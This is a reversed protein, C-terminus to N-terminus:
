ELLPHYPFILLICGCSAWTDRKCAAIQTEQRAIFLTLIYKEAIEHSYLAVSVHGGEVIKKASANQDDAWVAAYQRGAEGRVGANSLDITAEFVADAGHNDIRLQLTNNRWILSLNADPSNSLRNPAALEDSPAVNGRALELAGTPELQMKRYIAYGIIVAGLVTWGTELFRGAAGFYNALLDVDGVVNL